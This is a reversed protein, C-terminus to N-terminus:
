RSASLRRTHGSGNRTGKYIEFTLFALVLPNVIKTRALEELFDETNTTMLVHEINDSRCPIESCASSVKLHNQGLRLKSHVNNVQSICNSVDKLRNGSVGRTEFETMVSLDLDVKNLPVYKGQFTSLNKDKLVECRGFINVEGEPFHGIYVNNIKLESDSMRGSLDADLFSNSLILDAHVNHFAANFFGLEAVHSDLRTFIGKPEESISISSGFTRAELLGNLATLTPFKTELEMKQEDWSFSGSIDSVRISQDGVDLSGITFLGNELLEAFGDATSLTGLQVSVKTLELPPETIAKTQPSEFVVKKFQDLTTSTHASGSLSDSMVSDAWRLNQLHFNLRLPLDEFQSVPLIEIKISGATFDSIAVSQADITLTPQRSFLEWDTRVRNFTVGLNGNVLYKLRKFELNLDPLVKVSEFRVVQSIKPAIIKTIVTSGLLLILFYFASCVVLGILSFKLARMSSSKM